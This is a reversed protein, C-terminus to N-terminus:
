PAIKLPLQKWTAGGDSTRYLSDHGGAPDDANDVILAWGHAADVFDIQRLDRKSGELGFDINPKVTQWSKAGDHTVYLNAGGCV